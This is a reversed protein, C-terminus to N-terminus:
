GTVSMSEQRSMLTNGDPRYFIQTAHFDRERRLDKDFTLLFNGPPLGRTDQFPARVNRQTRDSFLFSAASMPLHSRCETARFPCYRKELKEQDVHL